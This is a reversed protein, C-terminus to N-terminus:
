RTRWLTVLGMAASLTIMLCEFWNHGRSRIALVLAAVAALPLVGPIAWYAPQLYFPLPGLRQEWVRDFPLGSALAPLFALAGYAVVAAVALRAARRRKDIRRWCLVGALVLSAAAMLHALRAAPQRLITYGVVGPAGFWIVSVGILAAVLLWAARARDGPTLRGWRLLLFLGLAATLVTTVWRMDSRLTWAEVLSLPLLLFLSWCLLRGLSEAVLIALGGLLLGRM